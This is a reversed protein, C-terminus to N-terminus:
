DWVSPARTAPAVESEYAAGIRLITAEDFPLGVIQLGVPLGSSPLASPVSIAPQGTLNWPGTFPILSGFDGPIMEDFRPPVCPLTPTVLADLRSEAFTRAAEERMLARYRQAQSVHESPLLAGLSLLRRTREHYEDAREELWRRHTPSVESPFITFLAALAHKFSPLDVTVLVAGLDRLVSLAGDFASAVEPQMADERFTQPAVGIRLGAVGDNLSNTYSPVAVDLSRPDRADYGAIVQLAIAADEVTRTFTGIHDLSSSSAQPITGTSPVRGHTAKLGVTGTVCAPKRVSGGADTGLALLSSGVQVSVGGGASSGGPYRDLDWPNRTPPDDQGCAFEHTVHKGICIAGASRLRRVTEADDSPMNGALLASGAETALDKTEIVDKVGFPVGLLSGEEGGQDIEAARALARNRDLHVYAHLVPETEEIRRFTLETLETASLERSAILDRATRLTLDALDAM